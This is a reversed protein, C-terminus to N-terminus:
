PRYVSQPPRAVVPRSEWGALMRRYSELLNVHEEVWFEFTSVNMRGIGRRAFLVMSGDELLVPTSPARKMRFLAYNLIRTFWLRRQVGPEPPDALPSVLHLQDFRVFCEVVLDSDVVMRYSGREDALLPDMGQRQVFLEILSSLQMSAKM